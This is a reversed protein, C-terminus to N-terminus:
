GTEEDAESVIDDVREGDVECKENVNAVAQHQMSEGSSPEVVGVVAAPGRTPSATWVLSRDDPSRSGTVTVARELVKRVAFASSDRVGVAEDHQRPIPLTMARRIVGVGDNAVRSKEEATVIDLLKCV